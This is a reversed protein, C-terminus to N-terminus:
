ENKFYLVINSINKHEEKELKKLGQKIRETLTIENTSESLFIELKEKAKTVENQLNERIENEEQNLKEHKIKFSKTLDENAKEFLNNIKSIEEEIKEKLSVIKSLLNDFNKTSNELTINENKLSEEDLVEIIKHNKHM